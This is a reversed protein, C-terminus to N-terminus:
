GKLAILLLLQGFYLKMERFKRHIEDVLLRARLFLHILSHQALSKLLYEHFSLLNLDQFLKKLRMLSIFCVTAWLVDHAKFFEFQLFDCLLNLNQLAVM